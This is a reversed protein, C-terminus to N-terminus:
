NLIHKYCLLKGTIRGLKGVTVFKGTFGACHAGLSHGLVHVNEITAM